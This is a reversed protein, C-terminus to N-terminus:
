RSWWKRFFRLLRRRILRILLWLLTGWFLLAIAGLIMGRIADPLLFLNLIGPDLTYGVLFRSIPVGFAAFLIPLIWILRYKLLLGKSFKDDLMMILFPILAFAYAENVVKMVLLYVIFTILVKKRIPMRKKSLHAYTISMGFVLIFTCITPVVEIALYSGLPTGLLSPIAYFGSFITMGAAMRSTHLSLSLMFGDLFPLIFAASVLGFIVLYRVFKWSRRRLLETCFIPLAFVPFWKTLFGFSLSIASLDYRKKEFLYTALLLFFTAISDFMWAASIFIIYPNFLFMRMSKERRKCMKYLLLAIGIDALLIPFKFFLNFAWPVQTFLTEGHVVQVYDLPYFAGYVKAFPYWIFITMPPYAFGEFYLAWGEGWTTRADQTQEALTQYPSRDRSLDTFFNNWTIVDWNHNLNIFAFRVFLGLLLLIILRRRWIRRSFKNRNLM